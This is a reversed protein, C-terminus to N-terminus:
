LGGMKPYGWKLFGGFPYLWLYPAQFSFHQNKLLWFTCPPSWRRCTLLLIRNRAFLNPAFNKKHENSPDSPSMSSRELFFPPMEPWRPPTSIDCWKPLFLSVTVHCSTFTRNADKWTQEWFYSLQFAAIVVVWDKCGSSVVRSWSVRSWEVIPAVLDYRWQSTKQELTHLALVTCPKCSQQLIGCAESHCMPSKKGPAGCIQWRWFFRFNHRLNLCSTRTVLCGRIFVYSAVRGM